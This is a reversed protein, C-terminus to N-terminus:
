HLPDFTIQVLTTTEGDAPAYKWKRVAASAAEVLVPNGGVPAISDITGRASIVIELRVVGGIHAHRLEIPYAPNERYVLKRTFKEAKQASAPSIPIVWVSLALSLTLASLQRALRMTFSLRHTQEGLEWEEALLVGGLTRGPLFALKV